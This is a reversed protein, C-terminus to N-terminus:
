VAEMAFENALAEFISRKESCGLKDLNKPRYLNDNNKLGMTVFLNTNNIYSWAKSLNDKVNSINAATNEKIRKGFDVISNLRKSIAQNVDNISGVIASAVMKSKSSVKEALSSKNVAPEFVDATIMKGKFNVGFPNTQNSNSEIRNPAAKFIKKSISKIEM